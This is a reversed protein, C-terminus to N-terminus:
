RIDLQDSAATRGLTFVAGLGEALTEDGGHYLIFEWTDLLYALQEPQLDLPFYANPLSPDSSYFRGGTIDRVAEWDSFHFELGSGKGRFVLKRNGWARKHKGEQKLSKWGLLFVSSLMRRMPREVAPAGSNKADNPYCIDGLDLLRLVDPYLRLDLPVTRIVNPRDPEAPQLVDVDHLLQAALAISEHGFVLFGSHQQGSM